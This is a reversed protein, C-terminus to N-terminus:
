EVGILGLFPDRKFASQCDLEGSKGAGKKPMKKGIHDWLKRFVPTEANVANDSVPVRPLKVIGCEIADVLSFDSVVWPFLTGEEYGSGRLFFPTASLDFVGRLDVKHKLAEIGSIWLRAAATNAEAEARDEGKLTEEAPNVSKERYCHHAEDNIVVVNKVSLLEGCARQLMEGETERTILPENRWGALVARGTKNTELRERMQFAHYNAIVIKANGLETLMDPPVLERTRYYNDPDSPLLVRLRDKITIGPAVILFGKSFLSSNPQRSHNIAQWAILMAMVTTKGAGTALKMALRFLEPNSEANAAELTRFIAAYQRKGRAVESLWIITEIAELQCFFPRQNSWSEKRWHLLLRQTTPTVGWDHPDPLSRWADLYSRIENVIVSPNYTTTQGADDLLLEEQSNRPRQKRSRPVPVMYRSRRRGNIPAQELPQGDEGLAHHRSPVHYPSNLVPQEYFPKL